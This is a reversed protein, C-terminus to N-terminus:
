GETPDAAKVWLKWDVQCIFQLHGKVRYWLQTPCALGCSCQRDMAEPMHKIQTNHLCHLNDPTDAECLGESKSLRTTSIKTHGHLTRKTECNGAEVDKKTLKNYTRQSNKMSQRMVSNMTNSALKECLGGQQVMIDRAHINHGLLNGHSFLTIFTKAIM